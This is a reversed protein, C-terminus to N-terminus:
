SKELNNLKQVNLISLSGEYLKKLKDAKRISNGVKIQLNKLHIKNSILSYPETIDRPNANNELDNFTGRGFRENHNEKYNDSDGIHATITRSKFKQISDTKHISQQRTAHTIHKSGTLNM